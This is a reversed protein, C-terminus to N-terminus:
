RLSEVVISRDAEGLPRHTVLILSRGEALADISQKVLEESKPDLHATPEDLLLLRPSRLFLRALAVRQAQGSSLGSGSEGVLSDLGSPLHDAFEDVRAARAARAIEADSAGSRGLGINYRITGHFLTPRQPLWAIDEYLEDRAILGLERGDLLVSGSSPRAFGLLLKVVTSKGAGSPGVLAVREGAALSLGFGELIPRDEYFFGVDRLEVSAGRRPATGTPRTIASAGEGADTEAQPMRSLLERIREAASMAEMRAHYQTGLARLTLFYEPAVLLIFYAPAFRMRGSLLRLGTLVAVIAISVATILELMFSSLFAIRLVSMTARRYDEASREIEMAERRAAGFIKVTTFARLADLFRGSMRALTAWLRQNREHAEDGIAVMSLPLFVATAVLVLGSM